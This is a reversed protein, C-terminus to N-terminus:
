GLYYATVSVLDNGSSDANGYVMYQGPTLFATVALSTPDYDDSSVINILRPNGGGGQEGFALKKPPVYYYTVKAIVIAPKSLTFETGALSSFNGTFAIQGSVLEESTYKIDTKRAITSPINEDKVNPYLNDEPAGEPHLTTIVDAM